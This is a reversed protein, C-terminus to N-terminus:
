AMEADLSTSLKRYRGRLQRYLPRMSDQTQRIICGSQVPTIARDMMMTETVTMPYRSPCEIRLRRAYDNDAESSSEYGESEQPFAPEQQSRM